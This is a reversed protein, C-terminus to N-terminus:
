SNARSTRRRRRAGLLLGAIAVAVAGTRTGTPGMVCGGGDTVEPAVPDVCVSDSCLRPATCDATTACSNKCKGSSECRYAGCDETTGDVKTVVSGVCKDGVVCAGTTPNCLYGKACDAASTCKTKCADADCVYPLCPRTTAAPCKGSGDCATPLSEVDGECSSKRCTVTPGAKKTCATRDVGDCASASCPDTGDGSACTPHGLHPKGAVPSCTGESGAM